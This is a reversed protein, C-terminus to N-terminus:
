PPEVFLEVFPELVAMCDDTQVARCAGVIAWVDGMCDDAHVSDDRALNGVMAYVVVAYVVVAYVVVAYVVVVYVVVVYVVVAYVVVMYVVVAYSVRIVVM